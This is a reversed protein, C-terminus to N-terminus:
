EVTAEGSIREEVPIKGEAIMAKKVQSWVRRDKYVRRLDDLQPLGRM